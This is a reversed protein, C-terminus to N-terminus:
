YLKRWRHWEWLVMQCFRASPSALSILLQDESSTEPELLGQLRLLRNYIIQWNTFNTCDLKFVNHSMIEKIVPTILFYADLREHTYSTWWFALTGSSVYRKVVPTLFSPLLLLFIRFCIFLNCNNLCHLSKWNLEVQYKLEVFVLINSM